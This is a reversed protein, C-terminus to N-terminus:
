EVATLSEAEQMLPFGKSHELQGQSHPLSPLSSWYNRLKRM